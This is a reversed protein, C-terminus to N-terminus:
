FLSLDHNSLYKEQAYVKELPKKKYYRHVKEQDSSKQELKDDVSTM